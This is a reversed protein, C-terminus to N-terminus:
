LPNPVHFDIIVNENINHYIYKKNDMELSDAQPVIVTRRLIETVTVAYTSPQNKQLNKMDEKNGNLSYERNLKTQESRM